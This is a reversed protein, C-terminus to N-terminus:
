SPKPRCGDALTDHAEEVMQAVGAMADAILEKSPVGENRGYIALATLIANAYFMKLTAADFKDMSVSTTVEATAM